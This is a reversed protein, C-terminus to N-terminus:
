LNLLCNSWFRNFYQKTPRQEMQSVSDRNWKAYSRTLRHRRQSGHPLSQIRPATRQRAKPNQKATTNVSIIAGTSISVDTSANGWVFPFDFYVLLQNM